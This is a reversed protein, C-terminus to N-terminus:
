LDIEFPNTDTEATPPLEPAPGTGAAPLGRRYAGGLRPLGRPEPPDAAPEQRPIEREELWAAFRPIAFEIEGREVARLLRHDEILSERVRTLESHGKGLEAAVAGTSVANDQPNQLRVSTVALLYSQQALGLRKWRDEFIRDSESQMGKTGALADVATIQSGATPAAHELAHSGVLQVFYPYGGAAAHAINLAEETWTVGRLKAPELLALRSEDRSLMGLQKRHLRELFTGSNLLQASLEPTGALTIAIPVGKGHAITQAIMGLDARAENSLSQAEDIMLLVGRGKKAAAAGITEAASALAIAPSRTTASPNSTVSGSVKVVAANVEVTLQKQLNRLGRGKWTKGAHDPLETLLEAIADAGPRAQYPAVIWDHADRMREALVALFVTKGVGREGIVAQTFRHNRPGALLAQEHRALEDARGVLVEPVTGFSPRYPSDAASMQGAGIVSM